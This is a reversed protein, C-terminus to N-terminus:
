NNYTITWGRGTLISIYELSQENPIPTLTGFQVFGSNRLTTGNTGDLSVFLALMDEMSQESIPCGEVYVNLVGSGLKKLVGITGIKIDTLLQCDTFEIALSLSNLEIINSM